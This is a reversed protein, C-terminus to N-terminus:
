SLDHVAAEVLGSGASAGGATFTTPSFAWQSRAQGLRRGQDAPSSTFMRIPAARVVAASHTTRCARPSAANRPANKLPEVIESGGSVSSGGLINAEELV